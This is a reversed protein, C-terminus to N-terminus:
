PLIIEDHVTIVVGDGFGQSPRSIQMDKIADYLETRLNELCVRQAICAMCDTEGETRHDGGGVIKGCATSDEIDIGAYLIHSIGGIVICTM